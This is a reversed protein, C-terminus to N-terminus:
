ETDSDPVEKHITEESPNWRGVYIGPKGNALRSYLKLKGSDLFYQAGDHEMPRVQITVVEINTLTPQASEVAMTKVVPATSIAAPVTKAKRIKRKPVEAAVPSPAPAPAPAPVPAPAVEPAAAAVEGKKTVRRRKPKAEEVPKIPESVAIVVPNPQPLGERAEAQSKKARGMDEETGTGWATVKSEFWEGGYIHSDAPIPETILGHWKDQEYKPPKGKREFCKICIEQGPTRERKCRSEQFFYHRPTGFALKTESTTTRALCRNDSM